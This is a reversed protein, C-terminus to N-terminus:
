NKIPPINPINPLNPFMPARGRNIETGLDQYFRQIQLLKEPDELEDIRKQALEAFASKRNSKVVDKYMSLALVLKERDDIARTEQIVALAYLAEPEFVPDGKCSKALSEYVVASEELARKAVAPNAGLFKIGKFWLDQWAMQFRAAKGPNGPDSWLQGEEFSSPNGDELLMWAKSAAESRNVIVRYVVFLAVVVLVALVVYWVSSRSPGQKAGTIMRGVKDALINTELEKRHEAKM